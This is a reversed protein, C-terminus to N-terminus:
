YRVSTEPYSMQIEYLRIYMYFGTHFVRGNKLIGHVKMCTGNVDCFRM